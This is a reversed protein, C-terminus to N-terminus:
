FRAIRVTRESAALSERDRTPFGHGAPVSSRPTITGAILNPLAADNSAAARANLEVDATKACSGGSSACALRVAVKSMGECGSACARVANPRWDPMYIATSVAATAPLVLPLTFPVIVASSASRWSRAPDPRVYWNVEALATV